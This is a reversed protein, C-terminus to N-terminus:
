MNFYQVVEESATVEQFYSGMKFDFEQIHEIFWDLMAITGSQLKFLDGDKKYTDVINRYASVFDRHAKKHELAEPYSHQKMLGEEYNFHDVVYKRLFVIMKGTKEKSREEQPMNIYDVFAGILEQHHTDMMGFSCELASTWKVDINSLNESTVNNYYKSMKMDFEHIHEIFWDLMAITGSRLKLLDGDRRHTDVIKQYAAVFNRHAKKHEPAEPYNHEKMLGEEYKFHSMVYNRLFAVMETAEPGTKQEDPLNIYKVFTGILEQHHQDILGFPCSLSLDWEIQSQASSANMANNLYKGMKFDYDRIHSAFWQLMRPITNQPKTLDKDKQYENFITEYALIYEHHAEKHEVIHPYGYQEMLAVEYEFHDKIYKRLFVLMEETNKHTKSQPPTNIYDSFKKILAEHQGDIDDLSCSLSKNWQIKLPKHSSDMKKKLTEGMQMDFENIHNLFDAFVTNLNSNLEFLDRHKKYKQFFEKYSEIQVAHEKQHKEHGGVAYEKMLKEENSFTNLLHNQLGDLSSKIEEPTSRESLDMSDSFAAILEIHMEDVVQVSSSLAPSWEVPVDKSPDGLKEFFEDRKTDFHKFHYTFWDFIETLEKFVKSFSGSRKKLKLQNHDGLTQKYLKLCDKHTAKHSQMFPYNHEKMLDEEDFFCGFLYQHLRKLIDAINETTKQEELLKLDESFKQIFARREEEMEGLAKLLLAQEDIDLAATSSM